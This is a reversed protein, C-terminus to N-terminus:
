ALTRIIKLKDNMYANLHMWTGGEVEYERIKVAFFLEIWINTVLSGTWNFELLNLLKIETLLAEKSFDLGKCPKRDRYRKSAYTHKPM